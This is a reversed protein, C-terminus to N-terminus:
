NNYIKKITKTQEGSIPELYKKEDREVILEVM